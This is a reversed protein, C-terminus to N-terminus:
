SMRILQVAQAQRLKLVDSPLDAFTMEFNNGGATAVKSWAKTHNFEGQGEILREIQISVFHHPIHPM